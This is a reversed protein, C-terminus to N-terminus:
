AQRKLQRAKKWAHYPTIFSKHYLHPLLLRTPMILWHARIFLALTAIGVGIAQCSEHPPALVRSFCADMIRRQIAGPAHRQSAQLASDPIPTHMLQHCNRLCYYLVLGLGLQDARHQLTPWFNPDTKHLQKLLLDLDSLDRFGHKFDGGLLLHAASHLVRDEPALTCCGDSNHQINQALLTADLTIRGVLSLLNHHVDLTTGRQQNVMPPIEHMWQRYYADDYADLAKTRWGQWHLIQEVMALKEHPVFIDVDAFLRGLHAADDCVIYAAGKLFVPEIETPKLAQRIADIELQTDEQHAIAMQYASTLHWVMPDPIHELLDLMKLLAYARALMGSAYGQQLMLDWQVQSWQTVIKPDALLDRILM